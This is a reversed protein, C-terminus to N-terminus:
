WKIILVLFSWKRRKSEFIETHKWDITKFNQIIHDPWLQERKGFQFWSQAPSLLSLFSSNKSVKGLYGVLPSALAELGTDEGTLPLSNWSKQEMARHWELHIVMDSCGPVSSLYLSLLLFVVNRMLESVYSIIYISVYVQLYFNHM